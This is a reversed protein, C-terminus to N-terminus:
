VAAREAKIVRESLAGYLEAVLNAREKLVARQNISGKDTIEGADISPAEALLLLRTVRNSSGTAHLAFDRLRQRFEARVDADALIDAANAAATLDRALERCADLDPFVLAGVEEENHGTIVIDKVLPAFAQIFRARLPGVSVWTGTALKFDETVRGDFFFGLKPSQADAFRLADGLCYFGEEDFAKQTLENQRWYGPTVNPGKVRAELKEGNPVLKLENGPLPLGVGGSRSTEKTCFLASPATETAGLGSLMYIREGCTAVAVEDLADWVHQPLSAGAFFNLRLRSFFNQALAKDAYLYPLLTEFGKPVNYYVTPAIERLMGVTAEIGGPVPKGEDIYLTGGHRLVIGFNHNGGFTHNWPLWDVLVPPEERLFPMFYEIMAQNSCMMRQTNIVGKPLATSGSTFLFKAITEPEIAAHATDVAHSIGTSFLTTFDTVARGPPPADSVVIEVDDAVCAAFAKAYLSGNDAFVLGPTLLSIIHRLKAFDSSILAYAPSIPAFPIGVYLAALALLAHDISNGSLIVIPREASLRRELLAQGLARVKARTQAYSLSRWSRQKSDQKDREALFIRDPAIHAWHELRDTVCRDYPALPIPSRAYIIGGDRHELSVDLHGLQVDRTPPSPTPAMHKEGMVGTAAHRGCALTDRERHIVRTILIRAAEILQLMDEILCRIYGIDLVDSFRVWMEPIHELAM